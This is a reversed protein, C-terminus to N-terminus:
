ITLYIFLRTGSVACQSAAVRAALAGAWKPTVISCTAAGCVRAITVGLVVFTPLTAWDGFDGTDYRNGGPLAKFGSTGFAADNELDGDDWLSANGALKSGENTGRWGFDDADAQSMGLHIELQKWEDDSPFHWGSPCVGQVGSPNNDSSTTGNMAAAWTYLSGYTSVEGNENNNYYCYAKDDYGLADWASNSEVLTIETGNAFHTTKLNEAMWWQNGIKIAQYKNGDYDMCDVLEFTYSTSVSPNDVMVTVYDNYYGTYKLTDGITFPFDKTSGSKPMNNYMQTQVLHLYVIESKANGASLSIAKSTVTTEDMHVTIFYIGNNEPFFRWCHSGKTLQGNWVAIFQGTINFVAINVKEKDKVYFDINASTSFPNPYVQFTLNESIMPVTVMEGTTLNFGSNGPITISATQTLNEINVSDLTVPTEDELIEGSFSVIIDQANIQMAFLVVTIITLLKKMIGSKKLKIFTTTESQKLNSSILSLFFLFSCQKNLVRIARYPLFPDAFFSFCNEKLYSM